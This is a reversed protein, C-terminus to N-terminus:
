CPPLSFIFDLLLIGEWPLQPFILSIQFIRHQIKRGLVMGSRSESNCILKYIITKIIKDFEKHRQSLIQLLSLCFWSQLMQKFPGWFCQLNLSPLTMKGEVQTWWTNCSASFFLSLHFKAWDAFTPGFTTPKPAASFACPLSASSGLYTKARSSNTHGQAVETRQPKM